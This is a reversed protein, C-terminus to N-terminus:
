ARGSNCSHHVSSLQVKSFRLELKRMETGTRGEGKGDSFAVGSVIFGRMRFGGKGYPCKEELWFDEERTKEM